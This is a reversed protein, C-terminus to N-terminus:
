NLNLNNKIKQTIQVMIPTKSSLNWICNFYSKYEKSYGYNDTQAWLFGLTISEMTNPKFTKLKYFCFKFEWISVFVTYIIFWILTPIGWIFTLLIALIIQSLIKISLLLYKFFPGLIYKM